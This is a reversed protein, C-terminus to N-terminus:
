IRKKNRACFEAKSLGVLNGRGNNEELKKPSICKEAKVLAQIRHRKDVKTM